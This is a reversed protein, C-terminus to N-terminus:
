YLFQFHFNRYSSGEIDMSYQPVEPLWVNINVFISYKIM